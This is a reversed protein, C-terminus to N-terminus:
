VDDELAGVECKSPEPKLVPSRSENNETKRNCFDTWSSAPNTGWIQGGAASKGNWKEATKRDFRNIYTYM